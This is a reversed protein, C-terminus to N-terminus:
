YLYLLFAKAQKPPLYRLSLKSGVSGLGATAARFFPQREM